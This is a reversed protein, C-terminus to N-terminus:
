IARTLSDRVQSQAPQIQLNIATLQVPQAKAHALGIHSGHQSVAHHSITSHFITAHQCQASGQNHLVPRPLVPIIGTVSSTQASCQQHPSSPPPRCYSLSPELPPQRKPNFSSSNRNSSLWPRHSFKPMRQFSVCKNYLRCMSNWM